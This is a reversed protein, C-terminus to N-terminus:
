RASAFLATTDIPETSVILGNGDWLPALEHFSVLKVPNPPDFLKAQNNETGLFLEYHNYTKSMADIKVHLIIPYELQCLERTTLKGIPIVYLGNDESAKKLESLSSVDRSGIYEPKVLESFDVEYNFLKMASYLCYVGCYSGTSIGESVCTTGSPNEINKVEAITRSGFITILLFVCLPLYLHLIRGGSNNFSEM